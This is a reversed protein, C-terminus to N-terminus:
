HWHKRGESVAATWLHAPHWTVPLVLSSLSLLVLATKTKQNFWTVLPFSPLSIVHAHTNEGLWWCGFHV